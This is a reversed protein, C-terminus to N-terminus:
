VAGDATLTCSPLWQSGEPGSHRTEPGLTAGVRQAARAGSWGERANRVPPHRACVSGPLAAAHRRRHLAACPNPASLTDGEWAPNSGHCRGRLRHVLHGLSLLLFLRLLYARYGGQHGIPSSSRRWEGAVGAAAGSQHPGCSPTTKWWMVSSSACPIARLSMLLSMSAPYQVTSDTLLAYYHRHAQGAGWRLTSRM